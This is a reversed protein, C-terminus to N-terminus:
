DIEGRRMAISVAETLKCTGYKEFIRKRYSMVTALSLECMIAVEKFVYGQAVLQMIQRKKDSLTYVRMRM